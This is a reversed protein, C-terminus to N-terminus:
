KKVSSAPSQDLSGVMYLASARGNSSCGRGSTLASKLRIHYRRQRFIHHKMNLQSAVNCNLRHGSKWVNSSQQWMTTENIQLTHGTSQFQLSELNLTALILTYVRDDNAHIKLNSSPQFHPWRRHDGKYRPMKLPINAICHQLKGWSTVTKEKWPLM